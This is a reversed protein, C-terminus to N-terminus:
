AGCYSSIFQVLSSSRYHNRTSVEDEEVAVWVSVDSQLKAFRRGVVLLIKDCLEFVRALLIYAALVTEGDVVLAGSFRRGHGIAAVGDM